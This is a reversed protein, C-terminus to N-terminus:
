REPNRIICGSYALISALPSPLFLDAVFLFWLSFTNEPVGYLEPVTHCSCFHECFAVTFM